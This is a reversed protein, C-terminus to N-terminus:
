AKRCYWADISSWRVCVREYGKPILLNDFQKLVELNMNHEITIYRVDYQSFDLSTIAELDAGEIDISLYDIQPPAGVRNLLQTLTECPVIHIGEVASIRSRKSGLHDVNATRALSSMPGALLFEADGAMKSVAANVVRVSDSSRSEQLQGALTPNAEILLGSWGFNQQLSYTNSYKKPYAAGLDVFYGPSSCCSAVWADQLMQGQFEVGSSRPDKLMWTLLSNTPRDWLGYFLQAFRAVFGSRHTLRLSRTLLAGPLLSSGYPVTRIVFATARHPM